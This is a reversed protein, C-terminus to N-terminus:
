GSEEEVVCKPVAVSGANCYLCKGYRRIHFNHSEISHFRCGVPVEPTNDLIVVNRTM